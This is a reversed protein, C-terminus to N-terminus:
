VNLADFKLTKSWLKGYGDVFKQHVDEKHYLDIGEPKDFVMLLMIDWSMEMVDAKTKQPTGVYSSKINKATVLMKLGEILKDKDAPDKLWYYVIHVLNGTNGTMKDKAGAATPILSAGATTAATAGALKLLSRRSVSKMPKM